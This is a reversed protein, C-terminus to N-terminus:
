PTRYFVNEDPRSESTACVVSESTPSYLGMTALQLFIDKESQENRIEAVQRERCVEQTALEGTFDVLGFLARHHTRELAPQSQPVLESNRYTQRYCGSDLALFLLGLATRIMKSQRM